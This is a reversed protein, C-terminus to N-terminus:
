LKYTMSFVTTLVVEFPIVPGLSTPIVTQTESVEARVALRNRVNTM